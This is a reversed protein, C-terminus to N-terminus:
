DSDSQTQSLHRRVKPHPYFHLTQYDEYQGVRDMEEMTKWIRVYWAVSRAAQMSEEWMIKKKLSAAALDKLSYAEILHWDGMLFDETDTYELSEEIRRMSAKYKEVTEAGNHVHFKLYINCHKWQLHTLKFIQDVLECGKKTSRLQKREM